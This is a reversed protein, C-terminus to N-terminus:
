LTHLLAPIECLDFVTYDPRIGGTATERSPCYWISRIGANQAGKIDSAIRDGVLVTKDRSFQPIAAFCAEFFRVDPKDFGIDESIFVGDFLANIETDALRATQTSRFGNTVIYLRYHGHLTRILNLAGPMYFKGRGLAKEYWDAAENPVVSVSLTGFLDAFRTERLERRNILGKELKKWAALDIESYREALAETPTVGFHSLTDFIANREAKKFDFLTEDLDFLVTDIM